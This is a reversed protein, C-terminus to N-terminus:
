RKEDETKRERRRQRREKRKERREDGSAFLDAVFSALAALLEDM